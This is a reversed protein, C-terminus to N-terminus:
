AKAAAGVKILKNIEMMVQVLVGGLALAAWGPVVFGYHLPHSFLEEMFWFTHGFENYGVNPLVMFPGAVAITLAIPIGKSYYPLRTRAWLWAAVGTIIFAPFNFYFEIIHSPTFDTDRIATQHWTADQEGFLSAAFYVIYVYAALWAVFQFWRKLQDRPSLQDLNRDRTKWIWGWLGVAVVAEVAFQAYLLNMWYTQFEPEFADMGYEWAFLGQYIRLSVFLITVFLLMLGFARWPVVGEVIKAKAKAGVAAGYTVTM